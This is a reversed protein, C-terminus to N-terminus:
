LQVRGRRVRKWLLCLNKSRCCQRHFAVDQAKCHLTRQQTRSHAPSIDGSLCTLCQLLDTSGVQAIRLCPQPGTVIYKVEDEPLLTELIDEVQEFKLHARLCYPMAIICRAMMELLAKEEAPFGWPCACMRMLNRTLNLVAGWVTRAEWWRFSFFYTVKLSLHNVWSHLKCVHLNTKASLFIIDWSSRLRSIFNFKAWYTHMIIIKVNPDCSLIALVAFSSSQLPDYLILLVVWDM